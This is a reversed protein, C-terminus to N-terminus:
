RLKERHEAVLEIHLAAERDIAFCQGCNACKYADPRPYHTGEPINMPEYLPRIDTEQCKLNKYPM